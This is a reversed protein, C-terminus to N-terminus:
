MEPPPMAAETRLAVQQGIKYVGSIVASAAWGTVIQGMVGYPLLSFKFCWFAFPPLLTLVVVKVLGAQAESSRLIRLSGPHGWTGVITQIDKLASTFAWMLWQCAAAVVVFELSHPLNEV